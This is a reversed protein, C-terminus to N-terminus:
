FLFVIIEISLLKGPISIPVTGTSYEEEQSSSQHRGFDRDFSSNEGSVKPVFPTFLASIENLPFEYMSCQHSIQNQIRMIWSMDGTPTRIYIETWGQCWCACHLKEHLHSERATLQQLKSPLQELKDGLKKSEDTIPSNASTNTPNSKDGSNQRTVRNSSDDKDKETSSSRMTKLKSDDPTRGVLKCTTYCKDCLGFKLAKQSCGSTTITIVKNGLLWSM